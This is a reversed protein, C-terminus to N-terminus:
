TIEKEHELHAIFLDNLSAWIPEVNERHYDRQVVVFNDPDAPHELLIMWLGTSEELKLEFPGTPYSDNVKLM